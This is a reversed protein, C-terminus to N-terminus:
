TKSKVKFILLDNKGGLVVGFGQTSIYIRVRPYKLSSSFSPQVAYVAHIEITFWGYGINM